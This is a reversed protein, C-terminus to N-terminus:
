PKRWTVAKVAWMQATQVDTIALSLMRKVDNDDAYHGSRLDHLQDILIACNVKIQNVEPDGSPNFTLGVAREGFSLTVEPGAGVRPVEHGLHDRQFPTQEPFTV